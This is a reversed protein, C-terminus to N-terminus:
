ELVSDNETKPALENWTTSFKGLPNRKRRLWVKMGIKFFNWSIKRKERLQLNLWNRCILELVIVIETKAAFESWNYFIIQSFEMKERPQM